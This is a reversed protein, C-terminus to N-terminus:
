HFNRSRVTLEGLLDSHDLLNRAIVHIVKGERQLEGQVGMLRANLLVDRQEDAIKKWVILNSCGTEDELTVFTVGSATGPRQKTIVLGAIRIRKGTPLTTLQTATVYRFAQLQERILALPHRGLTLGLSRYDAVVDQGKTPRRLLPVAEYRDLSSLLPTPEEVGAVSWNVKHRHGALSKLAGATALASLERRNLTTREVLQQISVYQDVRKAVLLEGAEESFGKVQRFGLRLAPRGSMTRELTSDWDSENVDVPRVEVGHRRADQTLQSASYFGMPQSNLLACTFAAPEHCKLWCSVYVLLAFSAAHSEPFGYEGFGLIQKFIQRAFDEEYGHARM